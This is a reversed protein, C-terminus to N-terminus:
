GRYQVIRKAMGKFIFFHFPMLMYWYLRGWLGKPRFTATQQLAPSPSEKIRFELWAEGPVKMEAFLLLWGKQKDALLVRWFDLADGPHIVALNTRGRRLGVGGNLKDMFGRFRWLRNAYYWGREGGISWINDLVERVPRTFPIEQVNKFCGYSPVEMFANLDINRSGSVMADKWSSLVLNQEMRQFALSISAKYSILEADVIERIRDESCVMEIKMSNVLNVALNYSTSTIFYLWYSSLRPTMVPLTYIYRKFGRVESFQLLMQKYSLVERGGIDFVQNFTEPRDIVGTLYDIVNRVAIPQCKTNLWKPTVMVPLKEVLDRIIEFSASGSGVIIGARLITVPVKGSRLIDEVRKRSALHTSLEESNSLGSLYIVQKLSTKDTFGIFNKASVEEISQFGKQTAGMSHVLYFAIDFDVPLAELKDPELLDGSQVTHNKLHLMEDPVRSKDRVISVVEHGDELLVPLLRKGIYGTLGTLLIKL